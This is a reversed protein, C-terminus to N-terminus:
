FKQYHIKDLLLNLEEETYPEKEEGKYGIGLICEVRYKEPIDLVQKVYDEATLNESHSRERIQMWCSGLNLSETTLQMITAAISADETWMDSLAGDAIVVIGLPAGALFNPGGGRANSLKNLTEKDTVVVFEWTRRGRASPALLANRVIQDIKEKEVPKDQFVRISRRKKLLKIFDNM